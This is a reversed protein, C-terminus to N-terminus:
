AMNGEPARCLLSAHDPEVPNRLTGLVCKGEAGAEYGPVTEATGIRIPFYQAQAGPRYSRTAGNAAKNEYKVFLVFAAPALALHWLIKLSAERRM